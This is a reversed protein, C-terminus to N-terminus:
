ENEDEQSRIENQDHPDCLCNRVFEIDALDQAYWQRRVLWMGYALGGILLGFVTTSFAIVLDQAMSALNGNSLGVLAPGLPILTGMLGLIPGVRISFSQRSLRRSSEIELDNAYKEMLRLDFRDEVARRAFQGVLGPLSDQIKQLSEQPQTSFAFQRSIQEWQRTRRQRALWERAFGGCDLLCRLGLVLLLVIVPILLGCSVAYLLKVIGTM